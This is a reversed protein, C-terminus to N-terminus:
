RSKRPKAQMLGKLRSTEELIKDHVHALIEEGAKESIMEPELEVAHHLSWSVLYAVYRAKVVELLDHKFHLRFVKWPYVVPHKHAGWYGTGRKWQLTLFRAETTLEAM